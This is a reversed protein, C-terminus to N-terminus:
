SMYGKTFVCLLIHQVLLITAFYGDSSLALYKGELSHQFAKKTLNPQVHISQLSASWYFMCYLM